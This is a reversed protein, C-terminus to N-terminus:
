VIKKSISFKFKKNIKKRLIYLIIFYITLVIFISIVLVIQEKFLKNTIILTSVLLIIPLLYAYVVAKYGLSTKMSVQVEEGIEYKNPNSCYVDIIREKSTFAMCSDKGACHHCAENIMIEVHVINSSINVVKGEHYEHQDIM